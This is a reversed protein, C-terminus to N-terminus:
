KANEVEVILKGDDTRKATYELIYRSDHLEDDIKEVEKDLEREYNNQSGHYKKVYDDFKGDTLDENKGLTMKAAVARYMLELADRIENDKMDGSIKATCVVRSRKEDKRETTFSNMTLKLKDKILKEAKTGYESVVKSSDDKIETIGHKKLYGDMYISKVLDQVDSDDCSPIGGGCANLMFAMAISGVGLCITKKSVM